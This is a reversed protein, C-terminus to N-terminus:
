TTRRRKEALALARRELAKVRSPTLTRLWAKTSWTQCHPLYDFGAAEVAAQWSGFYFRAIAALDPRSRETAKMSLRVGQRELKRIESVIRKRNWYGRRNAKVRTYTIGAAAITRQWSGYFRYAATFLGAYGNRRVHAQHLPLGLEFRQRIEAMICKRTWKIRPDLGVPNVGAARLAKRWGKKGFKRRAARHLGHDERQVVSASLGLSARRRARIASIVARRSWARGPRYKRVNDYDIGCAKLAEGWGGCYNVAAAYLPLHHKQVDNSNLPEGADQIQRIQAIVIDRNWKWNERGPKKRVEKYRIGAAQIAKKWNGFYRMAAKYLPLNHCEVHWASLPQGVRRQEQIRAVIQQKSWRQLM